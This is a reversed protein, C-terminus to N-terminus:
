LFFFEYKTQSVEHALSKSIEYVWGITVRCDVLVAISSGGKYLFSFLSVKDGPFFIDNPDPWCEVNQPMM